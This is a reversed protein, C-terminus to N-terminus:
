SPEVRVRLEGNHIRAEFKADDEGNEFEVRIEQGDNRDVEASWGPAAFADVLILRGESIQM